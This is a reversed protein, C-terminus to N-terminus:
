GEAEAIGGPHVTFFRWGVHGHYVWLETSLYPLRPMRRLTAIERCYRASLESIGCFLRQSRATRVFRLSRDGKWAVLDVPSHMGSCRVVEYGRDRLLDRALYEVKRNRLHSRSPMMPAVPGSGGEASGV